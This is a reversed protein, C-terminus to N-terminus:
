ELLAYGTYDYDYDDINFLCGYLKGLWKVSSSWRIWSKNGSSMKSEFSPQVDLGSYLYPGYIMIKSKGDMLEIM